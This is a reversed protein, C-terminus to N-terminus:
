SAAGGFAEAYDQLAADVVTFARAKDYPTIPLPAAGPRLKYTAFYHRLRDVLVQPLQLLDDVDGWVFDGDLVAIIKDDAEGNDCMTLGGIVRAKVLIDRATIPRESLVCIDLPDGDGKTAGPTLTAIRPGCWTRPVFGYLAPPSSNNRQPRDVRLFGSDKDIEYKVVDFPTIEVYAQVLAPPNPGPPLGHWPHPRWRQFTTPHAM